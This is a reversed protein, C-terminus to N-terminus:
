RKFKVGIGGPIIRVIEGKIKVSESSKSFPIEMSIEQGISFSEDTEISLGGRSLDQTVGKYDKGDVSYTIDIYGTQRHEKRKPLQSEIDKLLKEQEEDTMKTIIEILRDTVSVEEFEESYEEFETM